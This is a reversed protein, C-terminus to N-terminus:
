WPVVMVTGSGGGNLVAEVNVKRGEQKRIMGLIQFVSGVRVPQKSSISDVVLWFSFV